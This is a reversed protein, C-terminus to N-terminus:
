ELAHAPPLAMTVAALMVALVQLAIYIRLEDSAASLPKLAM